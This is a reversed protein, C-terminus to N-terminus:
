RDQNVYGAGPHSGDDLDGMQSDSARRMPVPGTLEKIARPAPNYTEEIMRVITRRANRLDIPSFWTCVGRIITDEQLTLGNERVYHDLLSYIDTGAPARPARAIGENVLEMLKELFHLAKEADQRGNKNRHRTVYKTVQGEFYGLGLRHVLDWHQFGAQYHTGAVQRTNANM